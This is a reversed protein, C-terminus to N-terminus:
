IACPELELGRNWFYHVWDKSNKITNDSLLMNTTARIMSAIIKSEETKPYHILNELNDLHSNKVIHLKKCMGMYYVTNALAFTSERSHKDYLELLTEKITSIDNESHNDSGFIKCLPCKSYVNLLPSLGDRIKDFVKALTLNDKIKSIDETKIDSFWSINYPVDKKIELCDIIQVFELSISIGTKLGFKKNLLAIWIIQPIGKEVYSYDSEGMVSLLPPVLKAGVKKHDTLIKKRQKNSM